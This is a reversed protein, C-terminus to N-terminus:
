LIYKKKKKFVLMNKLEGLTYLKLVPLKWKAIKNRLHQRKQPSSTYIQLYAYYPPPPTFETKSCVAVKRMAAQVVQNIESMLLDKEWEKHLFTGYRNLINLKDLQKRQTFFAFHATIADGNICNVAGLATPKIVSLYEEDDDPVIGEFKKMEHGFWLISNISFRNMAIPRKGCYLNKYRKDPLQTTLFWEHLQVAFAGSKWLVDEAARATYYKNLKIKGTNQMIYTCIANNIVLPSVIFYEPNDIRFRVMKELMNPEMWIIDDDLKFYITDEEICQKYFANISRNGDVIGDPQYVLNIKPFKESLIKFFEIDQKNTTNIWLDYRDVVDNAVVFPILYQMYRRRGAATNCVIKYNDIM